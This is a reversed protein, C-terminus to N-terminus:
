CLIVGPVPCLQRFVFLLPAIVLKTADTCKIAVDTMVAIADEHWIDEGLINEDGGALSAKRNVVKNLYDAINM